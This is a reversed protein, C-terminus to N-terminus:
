TMSRYVLPRIKINIQFLIKFCKIYFKNTKSQKEIKREVVVTNYIFISIFGIHWVVYWNEHDRLLSDVDKHYSTGGSLTKLPPVEWLYKYM